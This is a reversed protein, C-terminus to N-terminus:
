DDFRTPEDDAVAEAVFDHWVPAAAVGGTLGPVPTRADPHGVWVAASLPRVMVTFEAVKGDPGFRLMDIGHVIRDGVRTEFWTSVPGIGQWGPDDLAGDLKIAGTARAVSFAPAPPLAPRSALDTQAPLEAALVSGLAALSLTKRSRYM